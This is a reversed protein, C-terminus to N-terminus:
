RIVGLVFGDTGFGYTYLCLVKDNVEPMWDELEATVTHTHAGDNGVAYDHNHTGDTSVTALIFRNPHQLVSLWGSVMDGMDPFYVRVKRNETDRSSVIGLRVMTHMEAM